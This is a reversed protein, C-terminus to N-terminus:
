MRVDGKVMMTSGSYWDVANAATLAAKYRDEWMQFGATDKTYIAAKVLCAFLYVNPYNTLLSNTPAGSNLNPIKAKYICQLTYVADPIPALYISGGIVTFINPIGTAQYPYDKRYQDPSRYKLVYAPTVSTVALDRINIIDAPASVTETSAVTSINVATDQLRIDLDGNIREEALKIFDDYLGTLDSRRLWTTLSATLDSYTALAM